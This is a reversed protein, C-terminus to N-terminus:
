YGSNFGFGVYKHAHTHTHTHTRTPTHKHTHTYTHTYTHTHTRAHTHTDTQAHTHMYTHARTHTHAHMHTHTHRSRKKLISRWFWIRRIACCVYARDKGWGRVIWIELSWGPLRASQPRYHSQTNGGNAGRYLERDGSCIMRPPLTDRVAAGNQQPQTAPITTTRRMMQENADLESTAFLAHVHWRTFIHTCTHLHTNANTCIRNTCPTMDCMHLLDQEM